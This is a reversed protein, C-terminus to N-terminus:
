SNLIFQTYFIRLYNNLFTSFFKLYKNFPIKVSLILSRNDLMFKSIKVVSGLLFSLYKWGYIVRFDILYNINTITLYLNFSVLIDNNL